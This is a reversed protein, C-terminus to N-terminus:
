RAGTEPVGRAPPVVEQRVLLAYAEEAIGGYLLPTPHAWSDYLEDVRREGLARVAAPPDVYRVHFEASVREAMRNVPEFVLDRLPYMVLFMPIGRDRVLRMMATLDDYTV